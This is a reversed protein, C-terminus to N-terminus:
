IEKKLVRIIKRFPALERKGSSMSGDCLAGSHNLDDIIIQIKQITEDKPLSSFYRNYIELIPDKLYSKRKKSSFIESVKEIDARIETDTEVQELLSLTRMHNYLSKKKVAHIVGLTGATVLMSAPMVFVSLSAGGIVGVVISAYVTGGDIATKVGVAAITAGMSAFGANTIVKWDDHNLRDLSQDVTQKYQQLCSAYSSFSVTMCIFVIFFRKM